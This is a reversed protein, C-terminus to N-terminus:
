HDKPEFYSIVVLHRDKLIEIYFKDINIYENIILYHIIFLDKRFM